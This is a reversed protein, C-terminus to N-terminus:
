VNPLAWSVLLSRHAGDIPIPIGRKRPVMLYHFIAANETAVPLFKRAGIAALSQGEDQAEVLKRKTKASNGM